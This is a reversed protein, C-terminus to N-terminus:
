SVEMDTVQVSVTRTYRAVETRTVRVVSVSEDTAAALQAAKVQALEASLGDSEDLVCRSGRWVEYWEKNM